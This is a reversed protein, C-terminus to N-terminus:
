AAEKAHMADSLPMVTITAGPEGYRKTVRLGVIRADDTYLIGNGADCLSKQLNDLDPKSTPLVSGLMAHDKKRQSWSQPIPMSFAIEIVVAGDLPARSGMAKKMYWRCTTEYRETEKPTIAVTLRGRRVFRPRGKPVPAGPIHVTIAATM